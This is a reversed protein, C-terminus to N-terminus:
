SRERLDLEWTEGVMEPGWLRHRETAVLEFGAKEYIARAAKLSAQTWLTMKRYSAQRAFRICEEVLRRGIGLGRASPEVLLLRLKAVTATKKVLFVSGVIEGEREAIWARERKPDFREAFEAVIGAVLGEFREDYGWEQAYLAGHRHVIWGLDGPNLPRLLYPPRDASASPEGLLGEITGM